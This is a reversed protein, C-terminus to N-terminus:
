PDGERRVGAPPGSTPPRGSCPGLREAVADALEVGSPRSAQVTVPLGFARMEAGTTPGIAALLVRALLGAAPGLAAVVARVASPSAFTVADVAGAGLAAALPALSESSAAVTRYAVPSIVDAGAAELGQVLEPRAEEARPVLVRAGRVAPAMAAALLGGRPEAPVLDPERVFRALRRATAPGIAALRLRGLAAAPIGLEAARSCTREVANASAFAVWAVSELARLARDLDESSVPPAILTAPAELLEAGLEVLRTSLADEDSRPRTVAVVRGRLSLTM